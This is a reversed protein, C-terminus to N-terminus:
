FLSQEGSDSYFSVLEQVVPCNDPLYIRLPIHRLSDTYEVLHKNVERFESYRDSALSDWLQTTDRKSLNMVKKINGNRLFDAEKIMSMFMDQMTEATPKLLILDSPLDKFHLTLNWTKSLDTAHLDFLLGVPYHWKLPQREHDYWASQFVEDSVQMGLNVLLQQIHKTVLPLYSCRSVELYIPDWVKESGYIDIDTPDLTIKFPIKGNWITESIDADYLSM